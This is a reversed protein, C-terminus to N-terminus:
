QLKLKRIAQMPLFLHHEDDKLPTFGFKLYFKRAEGDIAHVEVARIGIQESIRETRRLADVLLLAGLGRKQWNLDVALRGLLVVPLEMRPLGKAQDPPLAEYSVHHSSVAYYGAVTTQGSEVIVFTRALDRREFQSALQRFWGDLTANGCDFKQREHDTRLAQIEWPPM